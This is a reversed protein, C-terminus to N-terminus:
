GGPGDGADAGEILDLLVGRAQEVEQWPTSGLPFNGALATSIVANLRELGPPPVGRARGRAILLDRMAALHGTLAAFAPGDRAPRRALARDLAALAAEGEARASAPV